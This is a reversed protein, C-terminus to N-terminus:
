GVAQERTHCGAAECEDAETSGSATEKGAQRSTQQETGRQEERVAEHEEAHDHQSCDAQRNPLLAQLSSRARPQHCAGPYDNNRGDV